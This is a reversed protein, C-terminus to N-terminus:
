SSRPRKAKPMEDLEENIQEHEDWLGCAQKYHRDLKTIMNSMSKIEDELSALELRIKLEHKVKEPLETKKLDCM